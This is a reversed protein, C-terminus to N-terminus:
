YIRALVSPSKMKTMTAITDMRRFEIRGVDDLENFRLSQVLVRYAQGKSDALVLVTRRTANHDTLTFVVLFKM